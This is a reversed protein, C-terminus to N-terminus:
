KQEGVARVRSSSARARTRAGIGNERMAPTRSGEDSKTEGRGRSGGDAILFSGSNVWSAELGRASFLVQEM